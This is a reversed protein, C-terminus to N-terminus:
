TIIKGTVADVYVSFDGDANGEKAKMSASIRWVPSLQCVDTTAGASQFRYELFIESVRITTQEATTPLASYQESFSKMAKEASVVPKTQVPNKVPQYIAGDFYIIGNKGYYVTIQASRISPSTNGDMQVGEIEPHCYLVYCEDDETWVGKKKPANEPKQEVKQPDKEEKQLTERDLAVVDIQTSEPFNLEKLIDRVNAVADEKRMFPLEAKQYSDRNYSTDNKQDSYAYSISRYLPTAMSIIGMASDVLLTSGDAAIYQQQPTQDGGQTAGMQIEKQEKIVKDKLILKKVREVDLKVPEVSIVKAAELNIDSPVRVKADITLGNTFTQTIQQAPGSATTTVAMSVSPDDTPKCGAALAAGFAAALLVAYVRPRKM